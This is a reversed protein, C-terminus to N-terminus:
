SQPDENLDIKETFGRCNLMCVGIWGIGCGGEIGAGGSSGRWPRWVCQMHCESRESHLSFPSRRENVAVAAADPVTGLAVSTQLISASNDM